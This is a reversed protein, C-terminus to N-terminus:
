SLTWVGYFSLGTGQRGALISAKNISDSFEQFVSILGNGFIKHTITSRSFRSFYNFAPFFINSSWRTDSGAGSAGPGSGSPGGFASVDPVWVSGECSERPILAFISSKIIFSYKLLLLGQM